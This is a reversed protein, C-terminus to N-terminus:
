AMEAPPTTLDVRCLRGCCAQVSALRHAPKFAQFVCTLAAQFTHEAIQGSDGHIGSPIDLAMRWVPARNAAATLAAVAPPLDGRYGTGFVADVVVDQAPLAALAAEASLRTVSDPLLDRNLRALASQPAGAAWAVTVPWGAEALWRALVLGDGGNNGPGCLVLVRSGAACHAQLLRASHGGAYEMLQRYSGGAAVVADEWARMQAISYCPEWNEPRSM